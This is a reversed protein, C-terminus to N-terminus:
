MLNILGRNKMTEILPIFISMYDDTWPKVKSLGDKEGFMVWGRDILAQLRATNRAIAVWNTANQYRELKAKDAVPNMVGFLRLSASTSKILPRLNYFRSSIHFLIVGDDALRSLYVEIAEKTLLHIPIGDGTFADITIIDYKLGDKVLNKLSLRGDGTVIDVKGKCHNLYTFWKKAIEYNDPDIEFYTLVDREELYASIVGAGLGIVAIRRPKPTTEYVDSFGGGQYYYAVPMMQVSPDLMQSGHLTNGHVLIRMGGLKKDFSLDEVIRYTGYFNRHRYRITENFLRFAGIITLSIIIGIFGARGAGTLFSAGHWFRKFSEAGMWWFTAGFIILLILYEFYGKFIFPSILSVSCGGLFGGMAIALYFNTLWRAPPRTEYVKGHSLICILFFALLCGFIAFVNDPKVFYFAFALLLIEPWLIDLVKPVGGNTRFGIVFSCLYLALPIIWIMPFSGIEMSILNTVTLLLAAPLSSLLLWKGYQQLIPPEEAKGNSKNKLTNMEREQGPKLLYWTVSMLIIFIIYGVAWVLSQIKIGMLPEILFAYGFLGILSGANSAAYLPYPEYREGLHSHTLWSQAVVSTTSLITFPLAFRSLLIVLLSFIPTQSNPETGIGFPLNILPLVLLTLHWVGLKKALLHAFLYGLLLMAQFFVLCILWIQVTGGWFPLLFRGILPESVFLLFAGWFVVAILIIVRVKM